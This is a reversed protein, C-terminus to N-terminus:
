LGAAAARASLTNAAITFEAQRQLFRAAAGSARGPDGGQLGERVEVAAAAMEQLSAVLRTHEEAFGDSPSARDKWEAAAQEVARAAQVASEIYGSMVDPQASQVVMFERGAQQVALQVKALDAVYLQERPSPLAGGAGSWVFVYVAVLAILSLLGAGGLILPMSPVRGRSRGPAATVPAAAHYTAVAWANGTTPGRDAAGVSQEAGSGGCARCTGGAVMLGGCSPCVVLKISDWESM